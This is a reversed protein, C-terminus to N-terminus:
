DHILRFEALAELQETVFIFDDGQQFLRIGKAELTEKVQAFTLYADLTQAIALHVDPDSPAIGSLRFKM